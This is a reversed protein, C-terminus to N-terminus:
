KIQFSAMYDVVVKNEQCGKPGTASVTFVRGTKPDVFAHQVVTGPKDDGANAVDMVVEHGKRGGLDLDKSWKLTYGGGVSLLVESHIKLMAAGIPGALSIGPYEDIEVTFKYDGDESQYLHAKQEGTRTMNKRLTYAPKGPMRISFEGSPATYPAWTVDRAEAPGSRKGNAGVVQFSDLFEAVLPSPTRGTPTAVTVVYQTTGVMFMRTLVTAGGPYEASEAPVDLVYELGKGEGITLKRESKLTAKNQKIEHRKYANILSDGSTPDGVDLGVARGSQASFITDGHKCAYIHMETPGAMTNIHQVKDTPREPMKVVFTRDPPVFEELKPAPAEKASDAATAAGDEPGKKMDKSKATKASNKAASKSTAAPKKAATSKSTAAAKKPEAAPKSEAAPKPEAADKSDADKSEDAVKVGEPRFSDFFSAIEDELDAAKAEPVTASLAYLRGKVAYLRVTSLGGGAMVQRPIELSIEKGSVDGLPKDAESKVQGKLQAIADDQAAKLAVAPDAGKLDAYTVVYTARGKRGTATVIDVTRGTVALVRRKEAPKGPMSITFKAGPPAFPKWDSKPAGVQAVVALAVLMPTLM